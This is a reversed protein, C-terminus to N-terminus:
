KQYKEYDFQFYQTPFLFFIIFFILDARIDTESLDFKFGVRTIEKYTGGTSIIKIKYKKLHKLIAKLNDKDSLSILARKIKIKM